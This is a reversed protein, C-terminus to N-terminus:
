FNEESDYLKDWDIQTFGALEALAGRLRRCGKADFGNYFSHNYDFIIEKLGEKFQELVSPAAAESMNRAFIIM